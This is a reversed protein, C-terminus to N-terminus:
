ESEALEREAAEVIKGLERKVEKALPKPEHNKLIWNIKDTAAELPDIFDEKEPSWQHAIGPQWLDRLKNKTHKTTMFQGRPGVDIIEDVALTESDVRVEQTFVEVTRFIENDFLIKEPYLLTYAELLGLGVSFDAGALSVTLPGRCTEMGARWSNPEHADTAGFAGSMVPIDYYHGVQIGAANLLTKQPVGLVFGGSNPNLCGPIFSYYVPAGPFKIQILAIASLIEANGVVLEGAISAPGTSCMTPMAMFGVPIGAEALVLAAEIGGKDQALPDITCVFCDLPPRERLTEADGAIVTAMEVAYRAQRETEITETQVHKETNAFSAELEHLPITASPVDQAAVIPAYFSLAPLYDSVVAMDAIDKKASARRKRTELDMTTTGTADAGFYTKTGDIELDLDSSSRSALTFSRPAKELAEMLLNAPIKVIQSEFDVDAGADAFIKLAKDSPFRVGAKELVTLTAEHIKSLQDDDLIKIRMGPRVEIPRIKAESTSKQM